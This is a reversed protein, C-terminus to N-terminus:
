TGVPLDIFHTGFLRLKFNKKAKPVEFALEISVPKRDKAIRVYDLGSLTKDSLRFEISQGNGNWYVFDPSNPEGEGTLFTDESPDIGIISYEGMADDCLIIDHPHLPGPEEKGLYKVVVNVIIFVNGSRAQSDREREPVLRADISDENRWKTLKFDWLTKRTALDAFNVGDSGTGVTDGASTAGLVEFRKPSFSASPQANAKTSEGAVDPKTGGCSSVALWAVFIAILKESHRTM